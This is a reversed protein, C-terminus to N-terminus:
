EDDDEEDCDVDSLNFDKVYGNNILEEVSMGKLKELAEEKNNAEIEIGQVWVDLDLDFIYNKM